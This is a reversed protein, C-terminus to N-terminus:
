RRRAMIDAKIQEAQQTLERWKEPTLSRTMEERQRRAEAIGEETVNIGAARLQERVREGRMRNRVSEAVFASVNDEQSLREAIDDPLSVTIKKTM